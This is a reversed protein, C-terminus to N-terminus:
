SGGTKGKRERQQHRERQDADKSIKPRPRPSEINVMANTLRAVTQKGAKTLKLEGQALDRRDILNNPRFPDHRSSLPTFFLIPNTTPWDPAAFSLSLM